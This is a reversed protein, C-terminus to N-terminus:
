LSYSLHKLRLVIRCILLTGKLSDVLFGTLTACDSHTLAMALHRVPARIAKFVSEKVFQNKAHMCATNETDNKGSEAVSM